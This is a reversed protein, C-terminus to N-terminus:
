DTVQQECPLQSKDHCFLFSEVDRLKDCVEGMDKM